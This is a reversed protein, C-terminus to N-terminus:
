SSAALEEELLPAYEAANPGSVEVVIGKERAAQANPHTRTYENMAKQANQSSNFSAFTVTDPRAEDRDDCDEAVLFVTAYVLGEFDSFEGQEQDEECVELGATTILNEAPDENTAENGGCGSAAFALAACAAAAIVFSRRV